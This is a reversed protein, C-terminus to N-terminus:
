PFVSPQWWAHFSDIDVDYDIPPTNTTAMTGGFIFNINTGGSIPDNVIDCGQVESLTCFPKEGGPPVVGVMSTQIDMTKVMIGSGAPDEIWKAARGDYLGDASSCRWLWRTLRWTGDSIQIPYPGIAQQGQDGEMDNCAKAYYLDYSSHNSPVPVAASAPSWQPAGGGTWSVTPLRMGKIHLGGVSEEFGEDTPNATTFRLRAEWLITAGIPPPEFGYVGWDGGNQAAGSALSGVYEWVLTDPGDPIRYDTSTPGTGTASSTGGAAAYYEDTSTCMQDGVAYVYNNQYAIGSDVCHCRVAKGADNFGPAVISTADESM